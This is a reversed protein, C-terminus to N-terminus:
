KGIKRAAKRVTSNTDLKPQEKAPNDKADQDAKFKKFGATLQNVRGKTVVQAADADSPASADQNLDELQTALAKVRKGTPPAVHLPAGTGLDKLRSSRRPDIKQEAQKADADRKAQKADDIKKHEEAAKEAKENAQDDAKQKAAEKASEGPVLKAAVPIAEEALEEDVAPQEKLSDLRKKEEAAAQAGSHKAKAAAFAKDEAKEGDSESAEHKAHQDKSDTEAEQEAEEEEHEAKDNAAQALKALAPEAETAVKVTDDVVPKTIAKGSLDYNPAQDKPDSAKPGAGSM